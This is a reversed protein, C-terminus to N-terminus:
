FARKKWPPLANLNWSAVLHYSLVASIMLSHFTLICCPPRLSAKMVAFLLFEEACRGVVQRSMDAWMITYWDSDLLQSVGAWIVACWDRDLLRSMGAWMVACWDGDLLRSVGVWM